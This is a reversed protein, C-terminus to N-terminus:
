EVRAGSENRVRRKLIRQDAHRFATEACVNRAAVSDAHCRNVIEVPDYRQLLLDGPDASRPIPPIEDVIVEADPVHAYRRIRVAHDVAYERRDTM